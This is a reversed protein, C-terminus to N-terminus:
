AAVSSAQIIKFFEAPDLSAKGVLLGDVGETRMITSANDSTISGGYVVRPTEKFQPLEKKVIDIIYTHIRKIEEMSPIKGTGIAWVPEYAIITNNENSCKPISNIVQERIVVEELNNDREYQTEGVCIITKLKAAHASVAKKNTAESGENNWMRRESHGLIVYDCTMDVLMKASIEGTYAGNEGHHCNQGGLKVGSGPIKEAFDRLLTFPPCLIIECGVLSNNILQRLTKFNQMSDLLLGNMKWNAIIVPTKNKQM